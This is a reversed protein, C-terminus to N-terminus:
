SRVSRDEDFVPSFRRAFLLRILLASLIGIALLIAVLGALGSDSASLVVMAIGGVFLSVVLAAFYSFRGISRAYVALLIGCALAQLGGFFYGFLIGVPLLAFIKLGELDMTATLEWASLGIFLIATGIPPGFLTFVIIIALPGARKSEGTM